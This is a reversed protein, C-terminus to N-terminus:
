LLRGQRPHISSGIWRITREEQTGGSRGNREPLRSRNKGLNSFPGGLRSTQPSAEDEGAAPASSIKKKKLIVKKRTERFSIAFPAKEKKVQVSAM